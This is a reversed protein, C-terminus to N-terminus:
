QLKATLWATMNKKHEEFSIFGSDEAAKMENRYAELTVTNGSHPSIWDIINITPKNLVTTEM